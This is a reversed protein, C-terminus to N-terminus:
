SSMLRHVHLAVCDTLADLSYGGELVSVLRGSMSRASARPSLRVVQRRNRWGDRDLRTKDPTVAVIMRGDDATEGM